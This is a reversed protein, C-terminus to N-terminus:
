THAKRDACLELTITEGPEPPSIVILEHGYDVADDPDDEDSDASVVRVTVAHIDAIERAQRVADLLIDSTVMQHIDAGLQANHWALAFRGSFQALQGDNLSPWDVKKAWDDVEQDIHSWTLGYECDIDSEAEMLIERAALRSMPLGSQGAQFFVDETHWIHVAYDRWYERLTETIEGPEIQIKPALYKSIRQAMNLIHHDYM